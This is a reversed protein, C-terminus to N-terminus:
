EGRSTLRRYGAGLAAGIASAATAVYIKTMPDARAAEAIALGLATLGVAGLVAPRVYPRWNFPRSMQADFIYGRLDPKMETM